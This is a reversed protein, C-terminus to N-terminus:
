VTLIITQLPTFYSQITTHKGAAFLLSAPVIAPQKGSLLIPSAGTDTRGVKAMTTSALPIDKCSDAATDFVPAAANAAENNSCVCGSEYASEITIRGDPGICLVGWVGAAHNFMWLLALLIAKNKRNM